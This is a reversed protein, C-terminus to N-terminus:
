PNSQHIPPLADLIKQQENMRQPIVVKWAQTPYVTDPNWMENRSVWYKEEEYFFKAMFGLLIVSSLYCSMLIRASAARHEVSFRGVMNWLLSLFLYIGLGM